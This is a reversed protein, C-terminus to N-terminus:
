DNKIPLKIDTVIPTDIHLPCCYHFTSQKSGTEYPKWDEILYTAKNEKQCIPCVAYEHNNKDKILIYNECNNNNKM